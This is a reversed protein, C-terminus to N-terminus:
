SATPVKGSRRNQSFLKILWRPINGCAGLSQQVAFCLHGNDYDANDLNWFEGSRSRCSSSSSQKRWVCKLYKTSKWKEAMDSWPSILLADLFSEPNCVNNYSPSSDVSTGCIQSFTTSSTVTEEHHKLSSGASSLLKWISSSLGSFFFSRKCDLSYFMLNAVFVRDWRANKVSFDFSSSHKWNRNM